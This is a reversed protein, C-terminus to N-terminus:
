ATPIWGVVVTQRGPSAGSGGAGREPRPRGALCNRRSSACRGTETLVSASFKGRIGPLLNGPPVAAVRRQRRSKSSQPHTRGMVVGPPVFGRIFLPQQDFPRVAFGLRVVVPKGCQGGVDRELAQNIQRLHSPPDFAVIEFELLFNPEAMVLAASPAAKVVVCTEANRGV